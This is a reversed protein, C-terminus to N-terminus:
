IYIKQRLRVNSRISELLTRGIRDKSKDLINICYNVPGVYSVEIRNPIYEFMGIANDLGKRGRSGTVVGALNRSYGGM